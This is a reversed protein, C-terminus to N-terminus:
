KTSVETKNKVPPVGLVSDTSRARLGDAQSLSEGGRVTFFPDAGSKECSNVLQDRVSRAVEILEADSDCTLEFDENFYGIGHLILGGDTEIVELELTHFFRVAAEVTNIFRRKM